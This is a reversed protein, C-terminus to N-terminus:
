AGTGKRIVYVFEEVGANSDSQRIDSFEMEHKLFRCFNQLDRTTTPDTAVVRLREGIEMTRVKNRVLMLPEPCNLGRADLEWAVDNPTNESM